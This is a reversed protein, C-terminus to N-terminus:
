GIWRRRFAYVYWQLYMPLWKMLKFRSKGATRDLWTAPVEEVRQGNFHAKITLELGFELAMVQATEPELVQNVTALVGTAMLKKLIESSKVGMAESLARITIPPTVEVHTPKAAVQHQGPVRQQKSMERKRDRLVGPSNHLREQLELIDAERWERILETGADGRRGTTSGRRGTPRGKKKAAAEEDDVPVAGPRTPGSKRGTSSPVPMPPMGAM